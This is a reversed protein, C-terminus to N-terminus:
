QKEVLDFLVRERPTQLSCVAFQLSFWKDGDKVESDHKRGRMMKKKM